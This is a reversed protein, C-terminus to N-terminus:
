LNLMAALWKQYAQATVPGYVGDPTVKIATQLKKIGEVTKAGCSGDITATYWRWFAMQQQLEKVETGTSGLRITPNPVDPLTEPPQPLKWIKLTHMVPNYNKRSTPLEIPQIHWPERMSGTLTAFSRLGFKDLRGEANVWGNEWGVLDVAVAYKKGNADITGEHYSSYPPAAHASGPVLAWNKGDYNCCGGSAVVNHRSDFLGFQEAFSRWGGGIGLDIGFSRAEDMLAILRRQFEPHLNAFRDWAKLQELTRRTTGYGTRYTVTM